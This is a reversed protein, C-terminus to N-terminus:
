TYLWPPNCHTTGMQGSTQLAFLLQFRSMLRGYQWKVTNPPNINNKSFRCHGMKRIVLNLPHVVCPVYVLCSNGGSYNGLFHGLESHNISIPVHSHHSTPRKIHM